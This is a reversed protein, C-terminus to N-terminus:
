LGKSPFVAPVGTERVRDNFAAVETDLLQELEDLYGDLTTRLEQYRAVASDTPRAQASEVTSLLGMLQGDIGQRLNLVDQSSKARFQHLKEEIATLSETIEQAATEVGDGKGVAELREAVDNVQARVDRLRRVADHTETISEWVKNSLEFRANLEERTVELRPDSAIEFEREDSWDGITLRVRYTGPAVQPGAPSGWTVADDVLGADRLRLDWVFRNM